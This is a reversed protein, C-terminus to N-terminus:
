RYSRYPRSRRCCRLAAAQPEGGTGESSKAAKELSARQLSLLAPTGSVPRASIRPMATGANRRESCDLPGVVGWVKEMKFLHESSFLSEYRAM